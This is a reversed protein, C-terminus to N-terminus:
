IEQMSRLCTSPALCDVKRVLVFLLLFHLDRMLAQNKKYKEGLKEVCFAVNHALM